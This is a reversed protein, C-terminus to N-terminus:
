EIKELHAWRVQNSMFSSSDSTNWLYERDPSVVEWGSGLLNLLQKIQNTHEIKLDFAVEFYGEIKWYKDIKFISLDCHSGLQNNVNDAFEQAKLENPCEVYVRLFLDIM